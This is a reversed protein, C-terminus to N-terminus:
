FCASSSKNCLDDLIESLLASQLGTLSGPPYVCIEPSPLLSRADSAFSPHQHLSGASGPWGGLGLPWAPLLHTPDTGEREGPARGERQREGAGGAKEVAEQDQARRLNETKEKGELSLIVEWDEQAEVAHGSAQSM